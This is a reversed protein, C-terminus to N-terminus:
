PWFPDSLWDTIIKMQKDDLSKAADVFNFDLENDHRWVGIVFRAMIEESSSAVSLYKEVEEPLYSRENFDFLKMLYPTNDEIWLAFKAQEPSLSVNVETIDGSDWKARGAEYRDNNAKIKLLYDENILHEIGDISGTISKYFAIDGYYSHAPLGRGSCEYNLAIASNKDLVKKSLEIYAISKQVASLDKNRIATKMRRFQNCEAIYDEKQQDTLSVENM